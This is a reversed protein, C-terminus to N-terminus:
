QCGEYMKKLKAGHLKKASQVNSHWYGFRLYEEPAVDPLPVLTLTRTREGLKGSVFVKKREPRVEPTRFM